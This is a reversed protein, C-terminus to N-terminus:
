RDETNPPPLLPGTRGPKGGKEETGTGGPVPKPPETQPPDALPTPSQEPLEDSGNNVATLFDEIEHQVQREIKSHGMLDDIWRGLSEVHGTGGEVPPRLVEKPTHDPRVMPETAM